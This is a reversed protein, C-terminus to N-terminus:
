KQQANPEPEKASSEDPMPRPIRRAASPREYKRRM